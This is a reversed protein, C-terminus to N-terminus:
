TLRGFDRADLHATYNYFEIEWIAHQFHIWSLGANRLVTKGSGISGASITALIANIAGGHAVLILKGGPYGKVLVDLGQMTRHRLQEWPELGPVTGDPYRRRREESTLGEAQGFDRELFHNMEQVEHIGIARAILCASEKSRQLPSTFVADWRWRRLYLGALRAQERGKTNLATDKQGQIKGAANWDTEGHRVMCITTM